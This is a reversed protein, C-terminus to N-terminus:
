EALELPLRRRYPTPADAAAEACVQRWLERFDALTAVQSVAARLARRYGRGCLYALIIKRGERLAPGEGYLAVMGEIHDRLEACVEGHSPATVSDGKLDRFIWPNGMAGRAVMLDRCGTAAALREGDERCFIGGNATVPIRLAERVARIVGSRVPGAYIREWVRGHLTLACVGAEQLRLAFAVTPGADEEALIRMKVSVPRDHCEHRVAEVCRLAREPDFPLAAGAGKQTVKRVPCGMNIDVQDFPLAQLLGAARRLMAPDSGLVQVGLWPEDDGRALIEANHRNGYVLACADILPTFARRCGYRRCGRRFPLDTYGALPALVWETTNGDGAMM